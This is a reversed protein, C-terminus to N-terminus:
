GAPAIMEVRKFGRPLERGRAARKGRYAALDDGKLTVTRAGSQIVLPQDEALVTASVLTEGDRLQMLKVGKGKGREPLEDLAFVLVRGASSAVACWRSDPSVRVPPLIAAGSTLTIVAKGAKQRSILEEFPAVFGFGGDQLLLIKSEPSAILVQQFTAGGPPTVRGTLPEGQGRASPLTHAALAYARGTSDLFVAQQTSKGMAHAQYADGSKYQLGLPDVEHGKAARVWGLRSLIVTVPEAQILRTEDLPQAAERTVLRSRRADGFKEAD